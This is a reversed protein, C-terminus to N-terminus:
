DLNLAPKEGYAPVMLLGRADAPVEFVRVAPLSFGPRIPGPGPDNSARRAAVSNGPTRGLRKSALATAEASVEYRRGQSDVVIFEDLGLTATAPGDNTVLLEAIIYVGSTTLANEPLPTPTPVVPAPTPERKGKKARPVPTPTADTATAPATITPPPGTEITTRTVSTVVLRLDRHRAEQGGVVGTRYRWEVYHQGVDGMEVQYPAPRSPFFLLTRREFLQFLVDTRQGDVIAQTWYAETLPFGVTLPADIVTAEVTRYGDSVPGASALYEVFVSPINHGTERSYAGVVATAGLHPNQSIVGDRSITEIVPQGIREPVQRDDELSAVFRMSAYTPVHDNGAADGVIPITAPAGWQVQGDGIDLQGTVLEAVLRGNTVAAPDNPAGGNLEMRGKAYYQVLRKGAGYRELGTFIPAPGWIWPRQAQGVAVVGDTRQWVRQFAPEPKPRVLSASPTSPAATGRGEPEVMGLAAMAAVAALAVGWRAITWRRLRRM